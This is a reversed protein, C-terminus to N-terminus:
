LEVRRRATDKKRALSLFFRFHRLGLARGAFNKIAATGSARAIKQKVRV